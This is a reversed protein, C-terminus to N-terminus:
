NVFRGIQYVEFVEARKTNEDWVDRNELLFLDKKDGCTKMHFWGNGDLRRDLVLTSKYRVPERLKTNYYRKGSRFHPTVSDYESNLLAMHPKQTEFYTM